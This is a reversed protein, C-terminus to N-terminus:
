ATELDMRIQRQAKEIRQCAIEFYEPDIEIGIFRHGLHFAALGTSGGGMYPDCVTKDTKIRLLEISWRMLPEPKEMVHYRTCKGYADSRGKKEACIGKWLYRFVNGATRQTRESVWGFEVDAFSDRATIGLSKDWALFRGSHPLYRRLHDAGWMVIPKNMSFLHSPDFDADDNVIPCVKAQSLARSEGKMKFNNGSHVYGIGYPPDTVVADIGKLSPLIELCDGCYLTANGILTPNM